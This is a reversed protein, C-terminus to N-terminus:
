YGVSFRLLRGPTRLPSSVVDSWRFFDGCRRVLLQKAALEMCQM